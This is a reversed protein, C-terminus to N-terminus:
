LKTSFRRGQGYVIALRRGQQEVRYPLGELQVRQLWYGFRLFGYLSRKRSWDLRRQELADLVQRSLYQEVPLWAGGRAESRIMPYRKDTWRIGSRAAPPTSDTMLVKPQGRLQALM